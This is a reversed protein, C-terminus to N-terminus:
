HDLDSGNRCGRCRDYRYGCIVGLNGFSHGLGSQDLTFIPRIAGGSEPSPTLLGKLHKVCAVPDVQSLNIELLSSVPVYLSAVIGSQQKGTAPDFWTQTANVAIHSFLGSNCLLSAIRAQRLMLSCLCEKILKKKAGESAFKPRAKDIYGGRTSWGVILKEDRYDPFDFEIVCVKQERDIAYKVGLRLFKPLPYKNNTIQLAELVAVESKSKILSQYKRLAENKQNLFGQAIDRVKQQQIKYRELLKQRSKKTVDFSPSHSPPYESKELMLSTPPEPERVRPPEPLKFLEQATLEGFPMLQQERKNQLRAIAVRLAEDGSSRTPSRAKDEVRYPTRLLFLHTQIATGGDIPDACVIKYPDYRLLRTKEEWERLRYEFVKWAEDHRKLRYM